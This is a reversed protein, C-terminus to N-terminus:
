ILIGTVVLQGKRLIYWPFSVNVVRLLRYFLIRSSSSFLHMLLCPGKVLILNRCDSNATKKLFYTIAADWKEPHALDISQPHNMSTSPEMLRIMLLGVAQLDRKESDAKWDKTLM